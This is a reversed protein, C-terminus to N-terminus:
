SAVPTTGHIKSLKKMAEFRKRNAELISTLKSEPEPIARFQVNPKWAVVRKGVTPMQGVTRKFIEQAVDLGWQTDEISKQILKIHNNIHILLKAAQIAANEMTNLYEPYEQLVLIREEKIAEMKKLIRTREAGSIELERYLEKLDSLFQVAAQNLKM